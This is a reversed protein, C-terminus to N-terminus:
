VETIRLLGLDDVRLRQGPLVLTTSSREEVILPGDASFGAPLQEREFIDAEWWGEESLNVRRRGKAATEASRGAGDLNRVQPRPARATTKLRFNVFEIPTNDLRFTYAREHAAHFDVLISEVSAHALDVPV